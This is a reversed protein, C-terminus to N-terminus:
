VRPWPDQRPPAPPGVSLFHRGRWPPQQWASGGEWGSEQDGSSLPCHHWSPPRSPGMPLEGYNGPRPSPVVARGKDGLSFGGLGTSHKGSWSGVSAPVRTGASCQLTGEGGLSPQTVRKHGQFGWPGEELQGGQGWPKPPAPSPPRQRLVSHGSLIM